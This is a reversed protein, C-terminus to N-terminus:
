LWRLASVIAAGIGACVLLPTPLGGLEAPLYTVAFHGAILSGGIVAAFPLLHNARDLLHSVRDM